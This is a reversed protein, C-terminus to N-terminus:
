CKTYTSDSLEEVADIVCKPQRVTKFHATCSNLNLIYVGQVLAECILETTASSSISNCILHVNLYPM